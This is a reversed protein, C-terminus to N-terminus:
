WSTPTVGVKITARADQAHSLSVVNWNSSKTIEYLVRGLHRAVM